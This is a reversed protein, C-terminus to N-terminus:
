TLAAPPLAASGRGAAAATVSDLGGAAPLLQVAHDRRRVGEPARPGARRRRSLCACCWRPPTTPSRSRSRRCRARPHALCDLLQALPEILAGAPAALVECRKLQAVYPAARERFGVVVCGKKRVFKAGLRARRRYGWVPGSLPALWRQPSVRAVRARAHGEAGAGQRGAAGGAGPAAACLRRLGRLARLAAGRARRVAGAGGAAAGDDHQRHRRTRRFRIREAPLAGAVFATKGGHVVGEGAHTLGEM